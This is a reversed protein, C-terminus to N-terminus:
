ARRLKSRQLLKVIEVFCELLASFPQRRLMPNQELVLSTLRVNHLDTNRDRTTSLKSVIILKYMVVQLLYSSEDILSSSGNDLATSQLVAFKTPCDLLTFFPELVVMWIHM